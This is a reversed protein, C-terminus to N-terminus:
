KLIQFSKVIDERINYANTEVQSDKSVAFSLIWKQNNEPTVPIYCYMKRDTTELEFSLYQHHESEFVAINKYQLQDEASEDNAIYEKIAEISSFDADKDWVPYLLIEGHDTLPNLYATRIESRLSLQGLNTWIIISAITEGDKTLRLILIGSQNDKTEEVFEYGDTSTIALVETLYQQIGGARVYADIEDASGILREDQFTKFENDSTAVQNDPHWFAQSTGRSQGYVFSGPYEIYYLDSYICHYYYGDRDVTELTGISVHQFRLVEDEDAFATQTMGGCILIASLLFAIIRKM